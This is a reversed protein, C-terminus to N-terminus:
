LTPMTYSYCRGEFEVWIGLRLGKGSSKITCLMLDNYTSTTIGVSTWWGSVVSVEGLCEGNTSVVGDISEGGMGAKMDDMM